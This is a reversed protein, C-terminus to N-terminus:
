GNKYLNLIEKAVFDASKKPSRSTDITEADKINKFWMYLGKIEYRTLEKKRKLIIDSPVKLIYIKNPKPAIARVLKNMRKNNRFTLYVYRDALIMRGLFLDIYTKIIKLSLDIIRYFKGGKKTGFYRIEKKIQFGELSEYVKKTLTSKGSGDPGIFAILKGKGLYYLRRQLNTKIKKFLSKKLRIDQINKLIYFGKFKITEPMEKLKIIDLKVLGIESDYYFWFYHPETYPYFIFGLNKIIGILKEFNQSKVAIDVDGIPTFPLYDYKRIICYNIEQKNFGSFIQELINM